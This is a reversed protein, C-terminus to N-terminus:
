PSFPFPFVDEAVCYYYHTVIWNEVSPLKNGSVHNGLKAKAENESYAVVALRIAHGYKPCVVMFIYITQEM